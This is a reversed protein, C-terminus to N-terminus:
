FKHFESQEDDDLPIVEKPSRTGRGKRSSLLLQRGVAKKSPGPSSVFRGTSADSFAGSRRSFSKEEVGGIISALNLSIIRIQEAQANMEEAAAASEEANAATQQTVKDMEAVARNIQDIGQAQEQSAASIESVLEGVKAANREVEAFDSSTKDVLSSGGNIKKVNGEILDTTNRAAEAARMALNRVEEAVVAFGAGAEGARAAEVAANLALLNTQFAIEDITKIIKSTEESTTTIDSMAKTLEKMSKAARQVVQNTEKMLGDAQFASEANQKTMSSMEELSSSTEELSAAQEAAGEALSQSASAVESSASAVQESGERLDQAAQSIPRTISRSFYFIVTGTLLLFVLVTVFIVNGIRNAAALFEAEDQTFAIGWGTFPVAAFGSLKDVNEFVYSEFGTEGATMRRSINEMGRLKAINLDMILESRPHAIVTGERDIMFAYGTKGVRVRTIIDNLYDINIVAGVIGMFRNGAGSVPVAAVVVPNGTQMSRVPDSISARGERAAIFYKRSSVDNGIDTGGKGDAHVIGRADTALIVEYQEGASKTIASLREGMAKTDSGGFVPDTAIAKLKDLEQRLAIDVTGALNGALLSAQIEAASRLARSSQVASFIGVILLPVLM